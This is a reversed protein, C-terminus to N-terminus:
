NHTRAFATAPQDFGCKNCRKMVGNPRIKPIKPEVGM